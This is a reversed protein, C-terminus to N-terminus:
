KMIERAEDIPWPDMDVVPGHLAFWQAGFKAGAFEGLHETALILIDSRRMPLGGYIAVESVLVSVLNQRM